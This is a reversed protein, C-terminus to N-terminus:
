DVQLIILYQIYSTGNTLSFTTGTITPSYSYIGQDIVDVTGKTITGTCTVGNYSHTINFIYNKSLDITNSYSGQVAINTKDFLSVEFSGGISGYDQKIISM